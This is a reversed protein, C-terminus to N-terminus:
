RRRRGIVPAGLLLLGVSPEPVLSRAASFDALFSESLTDGSLGAASDYHQALLLLDDFGVIGDGTFDGDDWRASTTQGYYQAIRLLDDFNVTNDRNADGPTGFHRVLDLLFARYYLDQTNPDADPDFIGVGSVWYTNSINYADILTWHAADTPPLLTGLEIAIGDTGWAVARDTTDHIWGVAIGADNISVARSAGVTGLLGLETAATGTADWRVARQGLSTSNVYKTAYGVATGSGNLAYASSSTNGGSDTGLNGLETAATGTANWRVARSGLGYVGSFTEAYGVATGVDNIANARSNTTATEPRVGLNGLETAATGSANWRVARTGQERGSFYKTAWGVTTGSANIDRAESSTGGSSNTGLNGLESATTGTANWRVARRGANWTGSFGYKNAWGVATGDTNVAFAESDTVGTSDVGLHGLEAAVGAASWRVARYDYAPSFPNAVKLARGVSTGTSNVANVYTETYGGSWTGLNALETSSESANWRLGRFSQSSGANLKEVTAVGFGNGASKGLKPSQQLYRYLYGTRTAVNYTPGGHIEAARVSSAIVVVALLPVVFRVKLSLTMPDRM